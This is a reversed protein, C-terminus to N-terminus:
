MGFFMIIAWRDRYAQVFMGNGIDVRHNWSFINNIVSIQRALTDNIFPIM